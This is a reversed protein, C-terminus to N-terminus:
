PAAGDEDLFRVLAYQAEELTVATEDVRVAFRFDTKDLYIFGEPLEIKEDTGTSLIELISTTEDDPRIQLIRRAAEYTVVTDEAWAASLRLLYGEQMNVVSNFTEVIEGSRFDYTMWQAYWLNEAPELPQTVAWEAVGDGDFDRCPLPIDRLTATNVGDAGLPAQLTSNDWYLLETLTKGSVTLCDVFVGNVTPSLASTATASVSVISSDLVAEGRPQIDKEVFSYLSAAVKNEEKAITVLVLDEARDDTLDATILASYNQEFSPSFFDRDICYVSLCKDTTNYLNWGVLLEPFGDGTLDAFNVETIGASLGGVDAVSHWEGKDNKKLLQINTKANGTNWRYFVIGWGDLAKKQEADDTTQRLVIFPTQYRGELPYSLTYNESQLSADLAAQMAQQEKDNQPPILQNEVDLGIANCGSLLLSLVAILAAVAIFRRNKM